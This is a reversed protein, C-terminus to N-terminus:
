WLHQNSHTREFNMHQFSPGWFSLHPLHHPSPVKLLYLRSSICLGNPSIDKSPNHFGLKERAEQKANHDREWVLIGAVYCLWPSWWSISFQLWRIKSNWAGFCHALYVEREECTAQRLYKVITVVFCFLVWSICYTHICLFFAYCIFTKTNDM